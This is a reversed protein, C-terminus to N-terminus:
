PEAHNGRNPVLINYWLIGAPFHPPEFFHTAPCMLTPVIVFRMTCFCFSVFDNSEDPQDLQACNALHETRKPKAPVRRATDALRMDCFHFFILRGQFPTVGWPTPLHGFPLPSRETRPPRRLRESPDGCIDFVCELVNCLLNCSFVEGGGIPPGGGREPSAYFLFLNYRTRLNQIM